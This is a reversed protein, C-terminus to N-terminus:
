WVNRSASCTASHMLGSFDVLGERVPHHRHRQLPTRVASERLIDIQVRGKAFSV